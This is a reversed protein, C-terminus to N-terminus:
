SASQSDQAAQQSGQASYGLSILQDGRLVSEMWSRFFDSKTDAKILIYEAGMKKFKNVHKETFMEGSLAVMYIMDKIPLYIYTAFGLPIESRWLHEIPLSVFGEFRTPRLIPRDVEDFIGVVPFTMDRLTFAQFAALGSDQLNEIEAVTTKVKHAEIEGACLGLELAIDILELRITAVDKVGGEVIPFLAPKGNLSFLFAETFPGLDHLGVDKKQYKQTFRCFVVDEELNRPVECHVVPRGRTLLEGSPPSHTKPGASSGAGAAEHLKMDSGGEREASETKPSHFVPRKSDESSPSEHESVHRAEAEDLMALFNEAANPKQKRGVNNGAM